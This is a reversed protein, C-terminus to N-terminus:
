TNRVILTQLLGLEKQLLNEKERMEGNDVEHDMGLLHLLGHLFLIKIEDELSHNFELAQKKATDISIVVSGIFNAFEYNAPFSLVDTSSDKGRHLMNLERIREDLVFLLELSQKPCVLKRIENLPKKGIKIKTENDILLKSM